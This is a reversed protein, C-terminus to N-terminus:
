KIVGLLKFLGIILGTVIGGAIGGIWFTIKRANQLEERIAKFEGQIYFYLERITKPESNGM